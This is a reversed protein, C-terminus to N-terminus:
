SHCSIILTTYSTKKRGESWPDGMDRSGVGGRAGRVQGLRPHPKPEPSGVGGLARIGACGVVKRGVPLLRLRYGSATGLPVRGPALLM